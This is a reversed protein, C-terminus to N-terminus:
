KKNIRIRRRSRRDKGEEEEEEEEEEEGAKRRYPVRHERSIQVTSRTM